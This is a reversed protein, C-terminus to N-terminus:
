YNLIKNLSYPNLDSNYIKETLVDVATKNDNTSQSGKNKNNISISDIKSKQENKLKRSLDFNIPVLKRKNRNKDTNLLFRTEYNLLEEGFSFEINNIKCNGSIDNINTNLNNSNYNIFMKKIQDPSKYRINVRELEKNLKRIFDISNKGKNDDDKYIITNMRETKNLKKKNKIEKNSEKSEKITDLRKLLTFINPNSQKMLLAPDKNFNFFELYPNSLNRKMQYKDKNIQNIKNHTNKTFILKKMSSSSSSLFPQNLVLNRYYNTNTNTNNNRGSSLNYNKSLSYLHTLKRSRNSNGKIYNSMNSINTDLYSKKILVGNTIKYSDTNIDNREHNSNNDKDSNNIIVDEPIDGIPKIVFQKKLKLKKINKSLKHLTEQKQKSHFLNLSTKLDPISNNNANTKLVKEERLKNIKEQTITSLNDPIDKNNNKNMKILKDIDNSSNVNKGKINYKESKTTNMTNKQIQAECLDLKMVANKTHNHIFDEDDNIISDENLNNNIEIFNKENEADKYCYDKNVLKSNERILNLNKFGHKSYKTLSKMTEKVAKRYKSHVIFSESKITRYLQTKSSKNTNYFSLVSITNNKTNIVSKSRRLTSYKSTLNSNFNNKINNMHSSDISNIYQKLYNINTGLKDNRNNKDNYVFRLYKNLDKKDISLFKNLSQKLKQNTNDKYGVTKDETDSLLEDSNSNSNNNNVKKSNSDLQKRGNNRKNKNISQFYRIRQSNVLDMQFHEKMQTRNKM